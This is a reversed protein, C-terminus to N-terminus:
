RSKCRYSYQMNGHSQTRAGALYVYAPLRETQDMPMQATVLRQQMSSPEEGVSEEPPVIYLVNHSYTCHKIVTFKNWTGVHVSVTELHLSFLTKGLTRHSTPFIAPHTLSYSAVFKQSTM